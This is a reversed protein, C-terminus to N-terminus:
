PWTCCASPKKTSAHKPTGLRKRQSPRERCPHEGGAEDEDGFPAAVVRIEDRSGGSGKGLNVVFVIPFELGKAAHVTMLNM